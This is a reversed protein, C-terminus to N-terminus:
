QKWKEQVAVLRNEIIKGHDLKIALLSNLSAPLRAPLCHNDPMSRCQHRCFPLEILRFWKLPLALSRLTHLPHMVFTNVKWAPILSCRVGYFHQWAFHFIFHFLSFLSFGTFQNHYSRSRTMGSSEHISQRLFFVLRRKASVIIKCQLLSELCGNITRKTNKSIEAHYRQMRRRCQKAKVNNTHIYTYVANNLNIEAKNNNNQKIQLTSKRLWFKREVFVFSQLLKYFAINEHGISRASSLLHTNHNRKFM